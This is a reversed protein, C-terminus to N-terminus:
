SQGEGRYWQKGTLPDVPYREVVVTIRESEGDDGLETEFYASFLPRARLESPMGEKLYLGEM